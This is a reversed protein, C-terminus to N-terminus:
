LAETVPAPPPFAPDAVLMGGGTRLGEARGRLPLFVAADTGTLRDGCRRCHAPLCPVVAQCQESPIVLRQHKDHGAQGGRRRKSRPKAVSRKAHPHETSPPLSSNRPSKDGRQELEVLRQELRTITALLSRIIAQAEPSQRAILEDTVHLQM